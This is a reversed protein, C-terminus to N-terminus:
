DWLGYRDFLGSRGMFRGRNLMVRMLVVLMLIVVVLIVRMLGLNQNVVFSLHSIASGGAM